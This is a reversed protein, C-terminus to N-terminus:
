IEHIGQLSISQTLTIFVSGVTFSGDHVGISVSDINISSEPSESTVICNGLQVLNSPSPVVLHDIYFESNYATWGSTHLILTEASVM